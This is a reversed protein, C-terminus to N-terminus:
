RPGGAMGGGSGDDGQKCQLSPYKKCIADFVLQLDALLGPSSVPSMPAQFNYDAEIREHELNSYAEYVLSADPVNDATLIEALRKSTSEHRYPFTGDTQTILAKALHLVSYYAVHALSHIREDKAAIEAENRLDEARRVLAEVIADRDPGPPYSPPPQM